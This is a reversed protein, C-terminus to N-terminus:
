NMRTYWGDLVRLVTVGWGTGGSSWTACPFRSDPVFTPSVKEEAASMAVGPVFVAVNRTWRFGGDAAHIQAAGGLPPGTENVCVKKWRITM